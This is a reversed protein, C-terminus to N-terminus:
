SAVHHLALYALGALLVGVWWPLMAVLDMVDEAPSTKRRAM